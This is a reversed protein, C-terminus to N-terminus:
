RLYRTRVEHEAQMRNLHIRGMLIELHEKASRGPAVSPLALTLREFVTWETRTSHIGDHCEECLAAGNRVENALEPYQAKPALHHAVTARETQCMICKGEHIDDARNSELVKHSWSTGPKWPSM